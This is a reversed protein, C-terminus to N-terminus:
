HENSPKLADLMREVEPRRFANPFDGVFAKAALRAEDSRHERLLAVV